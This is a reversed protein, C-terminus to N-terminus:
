GELRSAGCREEPHPPNPARGRAQAQPTSEQKRRMGPRRHASAPAGRRAPTLFDAASRDQPPSANSSRLEVQRRVAARQDLDLPSPPSNGIFDVFGLFCSPRRDHEVSGDQRNRGRQKRARGKGGRAVLVEGIRDHAFLGRHQRVRRVNRRRDMAIVRGLDDDMQLDALELPPKGVAHTVGEPSEAAVHGALEDADALAVFDLEMEVIMGVVLVRVVDIQVRHITRAAARRGREGRGAVARHERELREVGSQEDVM